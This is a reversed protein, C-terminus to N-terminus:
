LFGYGLDVALAALRDAMGPHDLPESFTPVDPLADAAPQWLVVCAGGGRMSSPFRLGELDPHATRLAHAWARTVAKLPSSCLAQSAGARTPWTGGLDLLRVPRALQMGTLFPRGTRRDIRRIAGFAEAVATPADLALHLVASAPHEGAPLPHPDFRNGPAPGWSRLANWALVHAGATRHVRWLVSSPMVEHLDSASVPVSALDRPPWPLKAV